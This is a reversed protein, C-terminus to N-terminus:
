KKGKSNVILNYVSNECDSSIEKHSVYANIVNQIPNETVDFQGNNYCMMCYWKRKM